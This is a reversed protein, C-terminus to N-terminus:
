LECRIFRGARYRGRKAYCGVVGWDCFDLLAPRGSRSGFNAVGVEVESRARRSGLGGVSEIQAGEVKVLLAQFGCASEQTM